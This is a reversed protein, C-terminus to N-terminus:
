TRPLKPFFMGTSEAYRAYGAFRDRLYVEERRAKGVVAAAVLAFGLANLGGGNYIAIGLMMSLLACYMPHRVLRYPGSTILTAAPKLEPYISFNGPRNFYLTTLGLAAGAVCLVLWAYAGQPAAPWCSLAVGSLQAVVLLHSIGPKSVVASQM